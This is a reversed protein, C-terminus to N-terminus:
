EETKKPRGTKKRARFDRSELVDIADLYKNTEDLEAEAAQARALADDLEAGDVFGLKRACEEIWSVSVYVRPDVVAPVLNTDVFGKPDEDKLTAICHGPALEPRAVIDV